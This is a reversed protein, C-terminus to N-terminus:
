GSGAPTSVNSGRSGSGTSGMVADGLPVSLRDDGSFAAVDQVEGAGISLSMNRGSLIPKRGPVMRLSADAGAM